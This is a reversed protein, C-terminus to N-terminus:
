GRNQAIVYYGTPTLDAASHPIGAKSISEMLQKGAATTVANQPLIEVVNWGAIALTEGITRKTFFRLHGVCTLGM